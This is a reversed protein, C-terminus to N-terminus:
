MCVCEKVAGVGGVERAATPSHVTSHELAARGTGALDELHIVLAVGCLKEQLHRPHPLPPQSQGVGMPSPWALSLGVPQNAAHLQSPWGTTACCGLPPM